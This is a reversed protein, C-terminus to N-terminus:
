RNPNLPKTAIFALRRPPLSWVGYKPSVVFKFGAARLALEVETRKFLHVTHHEEGRRIRSRVTRFTINHRTLNRRKGDESAEWLITWGDGSRWSRYNMPKGEHLILDFLFMGGPRLARAIRVFVRRLDTLRRNPGYNFPEGLATVIDCPPLPFNDLSSQIFHSKPSERKALALMAASQDVGVVRFGAREALAAFIGSGCGLDVLTGRKLGGRRLLKLVEPGASRAFDGFGVHHIWALDTQYITSPLPRLTNGFASFRAVRPKPTLHCAFRSVATACHVLAGDGSREELFSGKCVGIGLRSIGAPAEKLM